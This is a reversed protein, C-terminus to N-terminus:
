WIQTRHVSGNIKKYQQTILIGDLSGTKSLDQLSFTNKNM